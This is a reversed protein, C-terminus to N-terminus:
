HFNTLMNRELSCIVYVNKSEYNSKYNGFYLHFVPHCKKKVVLITFM